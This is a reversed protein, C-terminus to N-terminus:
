IFQYVPRERERERETPLYYDYKVPIEKQTKKPKSIYSNIKVESKVRKPIEEEESEIDSEDSEIVVVKKTKKRKPPDQISTLPVSKRKESVKQKQQQFYRYDLYEQIDEDTESEDEKESEKHTNKPLASTTSINDMTPLTPLVPLTSSPSSFENKMEKSDIKEEEKEVTKIKNKALKADLKAQLREEQKRKLADQCKQWQLAQKPSQIRKKKEKTEQVVKDILEQDKQETDM